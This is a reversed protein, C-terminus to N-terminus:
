VREDWDDGYTEMMKFVREPRFVYEALEKKFVGRQERVIEAPLCDFLPAVSGRTSLDRLRLRTDYAIDPCDKVGNKYQEIVVFLRVGSEATKRKHLMLTVRTEFEDFEPVKQKRLISSWPISRPAPYLTALVDTFGTVTKPMATLMKNLGVREPIARLEKEGNELTIEVKRHRGYLSRVYTKDETSTPFYTSVDSAFEPDYNYPAMRLWVGGEAFCHNRKKKRFVTTPSYPVRYYDDPNYFSVNGISKSFPLFSSTLSATFSVSGPAATGSHAAGGGLTQDYSAM